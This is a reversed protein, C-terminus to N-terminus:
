LFYRETNAFARGNQPCSTRCVDDEALPGADLVELSVRSAPYPGPAALPHPTSNLVVLVNMEARLEVQAGPKAHGAVWTLGGGDDAVVKSFFNVNAMWDRRGLGWKALEQLFSDRGNRHYDNRAEQYRDGGFGQRVTEPTSHGTVTDHWGCSDETISVLVRGMDSYLVNGRTLFFTHQGKLTDPMNYREVPLDANFFMASVNAGGDVDTIRLRSGRKLGHSWGEGPELTTRFRLGPLADSASGM